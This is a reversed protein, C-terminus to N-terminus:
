YLYGFLWLPIRNGAGVKIGDLALYANPIGAIQDANKSPGGIEFVYKQDVMFDGFKPAHVSHLVQLQNFFFTERTSGSNVNAPSLTSM